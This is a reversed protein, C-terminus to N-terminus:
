VWIRDLHVHQKVFSCDISTGSSRVNCKMTVTSLLKEDSNRLEIKIKNPKGVIFQPSKASKVADTVVWEMFVYRDSWRVTDLGALPKGNLYIMSREPCPRNPLIPILTGRRAWKKHLNPSKTDIEFKRKTVKKM